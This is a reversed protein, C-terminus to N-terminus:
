ANNETHDKLECIKRHLKYIIIDAIWLLIDYRQVIKHILALQIAGLLLYLAILLVPINHSTGYAKIICPLSDVSM